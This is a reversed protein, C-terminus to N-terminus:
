LGPEKQPTVEPPRPDAYIMFWVLRIIAATITGAEAGGSGPNINNGEVGGFHM